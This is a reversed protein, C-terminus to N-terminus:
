RRERERTIFVTVVLLEEAAYGSQNSVFPKGRQGVEVQRWYGLPPKPVNLKNCIKALAVDSIALEKAVKTTPKSWVREYLEERTLRTGESAMPQDEQKSVSALYIDSSLNFRLYGFSVQAM